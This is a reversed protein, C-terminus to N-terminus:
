KFFNEFWFVWLFFDFPFNKMLFHLFFLFFKIRQIRGAWPWWKWFLDISLLTGIAYRNKVSKTWRGRKNILSLSRSFSLSRFFSLSLSLLISKLQVYCMVNQNLFFLSFFLFFVLFHTIIKCVLQKIIEENFFITVFGM